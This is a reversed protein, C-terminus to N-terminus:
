IKLRRETITLIIGRMLLYANFSIWLGNNLLTGSLLLYLMFFTLLGGFTSLLMSRTRTTGIYIGDWIFAAMSCLPILIT